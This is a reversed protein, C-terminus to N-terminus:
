LEMIIKRLENTLSESLENQVDDIVYDALNKKLEVIEKVREDITHECTLVTIFAPRTNTIRWIRDTSQSFSADTYPTDLCILYSAANLTLGTGCKSHTGIFIKSNPDNQFKEVNLSVQQDPIDGTGLLPEYKKFAEALKYCPQKFTSFVVVKEGAELLDEVIEICREIKSSSVPQTTLIGPDATAQRLRTTLALLNSANLNIKDAEAKVGDKIAEYFKRHQDSMEVLEYTITKAPMDSRAQDLTRRLMCSNLEEKLTELNKYGVVQKDGFGGFECYQSKFNTLTSHDNETWTLPMYCSIPSNLLLTGTAGVKYTAKLRLLNTGQQSSKTAFRHIEDVAIMGFKNSSKQFAEIIEDSRLTAANIIVFFESIPKKLQEARESMKAYTLNGNKSVKEGLVICSETSFRQIEKKWNQRLADVGCILMCHDILGRRKLTEALGIIQVTKGMGMSDLLLWKSHEPNLGFNIGDIQHSYPKFRFQAIEAETLNFDTRNPNPTPDPRLSLDITDYVTLLDLAKALEDVSIEWANDKKNYSYVPLTKIAAVLQPDYNFNIIFSSIGSLKRPPSIETITIM